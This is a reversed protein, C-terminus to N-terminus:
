KFVLRALIPYRLPFPPSVYTALNDPILDPQAYTFAYGPGEPDGIKSMVTAHYIQDLYTPVHQTIYDARKITGDPEVFPQARQVEAIPTTKTSARSVGSRALTHRLPNPQTNGDSDKFTDDLFAQPLGSDPSDPDSARSSYFNWYPIPGGIQTELWLLHARHWPFSAQMYHLCWNAHLFGGTQWTSGDVIDNHLKMLQMRYTTLEADSLTNIDKRMNFPKEVPGALILNSPLTAKGVQDHNQPCGQNYWLRVAEVADDSFFPAEIPMARSAVHNYVNLAWGKVHEYNQLDFMTPPDTTADYQFNKMNTQWDLANGSGGSIWCPNTFCMKIDDEAGMADWVPNAPVVFPRAPTPPTPPVPTPPPIQQAPVNPSPIPDATTVRGGQNYWIRFQELAEAPFKGQYDPGPTPMNGNPELRNYIDVGFQFVNNKNADTDYLYIKWSMNTYWYNAAGARNAAPVFSPNKFLSQVDTTGDDNWVPYTKTDNHDPDPM